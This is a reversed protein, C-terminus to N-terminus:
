EPERVCRANLDHSKSAWLVNGQDFGVGWAMSDDYASSSVYWICPGRFEPATFCGGPGEGDRHGCEICADSWDSYGSGSTVQCEGGSETAECGSIMTRLEDINPLRWNTYGGLSLSECYDISETWKRKTEGPPNQWCLQFYSDFLGGACAQMAADPNRGGDSLLGPEEDPDEM